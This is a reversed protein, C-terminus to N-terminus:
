RILELFGAILDSGDRKDIVYYYTGNPLEDGMSYLGNEGIGVFSKDANNYGNIEYVLVGARNFIKVNNNPFQTICDIQFNDNIGDGDASVLNYNTIVTGITITQSAVCGNFTIVTVEYDGPGVGTLDTGLQIINNFGAERWEVRRTLTNNTIELFAKGTDEDCKSGETTM